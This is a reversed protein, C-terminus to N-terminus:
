AIRPLAVELQRGIKATDTARRAKPWAEELLDYEVSLRELEHETDPLGADPGKSAGAVGESM